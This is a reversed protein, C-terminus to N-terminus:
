EQDGHHCFIDERPWPDHKEDEGKSLPEGSALVRQVLKAHLDRFTKRAQLDAQRDFYRRGDVWTQQPSSYISLPPGSWVVLDAQKGPELSGVYREVGLQRAPNITVFKLAEPESLGGYKVAKAAETNLHRALEADDSNFSVLVGADHMLAANYPIADLVEFKYGWWDSFTSGGAGHRALEDALKYGELIHQFTAIRIHFEECVRLLMQIEDQRYAHCHILRKGETVEAVAELELDVRPPLGAKTRRWDNWRRRYEIASRFEDRLLQEVGLRTQPYRAGSGWNSQKVNEGLAFKISPAAEAFKLEEPLGGWRFKIVQSQGGITNASGHLINACTVGGALQRYINIDQSDIFDGIRVEATITQGAENVGGDTAIHSHCDILGPTLHAGACDIITAGEPAALEVGVKRIEGREVLVSAHELVGAPGCTWVTADRFLVAAPQEPQSATRGFEGFPYLPGVLPKKDKQDPVGGAAEEAKKDKADQHEGADKADKAKDAPDQDAKDDDKKDDDKKKAAVVKDKEKAAPEVRHGSVSSRGGDAWVLSGSWRECHEGPKAADGELAVSLQLRGDWGLKEGPVVASLQQGDIAVHELKAEKAGRRAVGSLKDAEGALEIVLSESGGPPLQVTAEWKGRADCSPLQGNEYRRGDVWTEIIQTKEAFLDGDAVLLHALKGPELSGLRHDIGWMKAPTLTLARLAAQPDLGRRVARRIAPLMAAPDKLGHSALVIKVGAQELQASNAPALDWHLLRSVSTNVAKEATSVDPPKPFALPVMVACGAAKVADLMQYEEGSGRVVVPLNFEKALRVARLLYLNDSADVVVPLHQDLQGALAALAANHEPRPLKSDGEAARWVASYWRADHLSQRVLTLAGMPSSPYVADHFKHETTLKLHLAVTERLLCNGSEGDGTTVLASSGHIIGAAPAILRATVGQSRWASNIKADPKFYAAARVEPRVQSNWYGAGSPPTEPLGTATSGSDILGPYITKGDLHHVRAWEPIPVDEGVAMIVGDRLVLVGRPLVKDPAVVIKAGVLAHWTPTKERLGAPPATQPVAAWLSGGAIVWVVAALLRLLHSGIHM